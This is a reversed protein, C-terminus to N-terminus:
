VPKRGYVRISLDYIHYNKNRAALLANECMKRAEDVDMGLIRTFVAMGYSEFVTEANLLTLAGIRKLRPDKAWPGVLEKAQCTTVGEFGANELLNKLFALDPWLRGMKIMAARLNDTFVKIGHDPKMTGDDCQMVLSQEGLEVYGGPKTCRKMESILHEWDSVGSSITRGHVLDFFDDKFTWQQMADDIEFRCNPPVWCPQIPSLDTGIVEAMPYQEAMEVAWIGTGTGIDLIRHPEELPALHLKDDWVLRHIEHQLDLRDQEKEDTPMLYKETGYYSHYRRGNEMIYQNLSSTLSATSTDYGSSAYDEDEPKALVSPDIEIM